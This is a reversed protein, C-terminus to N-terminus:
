RKEQALKQQEKKSRDNEEECGYTRYSFTDRCCLYLGACGRLKSHLMVPLQEPHNPINNCGDRLCYELRRCKYAPYCYVYRVHKSSLRYISASRFLTLVHSPLITCMSLTMSIMIRSCLVRGM